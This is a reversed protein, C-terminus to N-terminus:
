RGRARAQRPLRLPLESQGQYEDLFKLIAQRIVWATSVDNATALAQIRTHADESLIM